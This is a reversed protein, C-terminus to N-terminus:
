SELGDDIGLERAVRDLARALQKRRADATGGMAAAIAAWENGRARHDAVECEEPSLRRRFEELLERGAAHRSPSLDPSLPVAEAQDDHTQAQDRRIDRRGAQQRRVQHLLKHRAMTVLLGAVQEPKELDYQGHAVRVFFSAMVSQCVDMSDFVRRLRSDQMRLWVRIQRRIVPEYRRVLEVAAQEDGDRVQRILESPSEQDLM